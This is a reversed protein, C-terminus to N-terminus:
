RDARGPRALHVPGAGRRHGRGTGAVKREPRTGGAAGAWRPQVGRSREVGPMSPVPEVQNKGELVFVPWILDDENLVTERMLRRSFDDARMRRPRTDPFSM